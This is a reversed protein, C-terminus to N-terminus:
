PIRSGNHGKVAETQMTKAIANNFEKLRTPDTQFFKRGQPFESGAQGNTVKSPKNAVWKNGRVHDGAAQHRRARGGAVGHVQHAFPRLNPM